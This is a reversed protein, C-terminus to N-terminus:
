KFNRLVEKMGLTVMLKTTDLTPRGHMVLRIQYDQPSLDEVNADPPPTAVQAFLDQNQDNNLFTLARAEKSPSELKRLVEVLEIMDEEDVNFQPKENRIM